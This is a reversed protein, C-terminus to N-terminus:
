CYWTELFDWLTMGFLQQFSIFSGLLVRTQKLPAQPFLRQLTQESMISVAARTDLEMTLERDNVLIAITIPKGSLRKSNEEEVAKIFLPESDADDVKDEDIVQVKGGDRRKGRPEAYERLTVEKRVTIVSMMKSDVIVPVTSVVEVTALQLQFVENCM